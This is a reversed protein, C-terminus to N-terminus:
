TPQSLRGRASSGPPRVVLRWSPVSSNAVLPGRHGRVCAACWFVYSYTGPRLDPITFNLLYRPIDGNEPNNGGAPPRAFGLFTYPHTSPDPPLSASKGPCTRHTCGDVAKVKALPLLSIGFSAPPRSGPSCPGRKYGEPHLHGKPGKCPPFCACGITVTVKEGPRGAHRSVHGIASDASASDPAPVLLFVLLAAVALCAVARRHSGPRSPYGDPKQGAGRPGSGTQTASERDM